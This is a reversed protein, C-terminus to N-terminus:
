ILTTRPARLCWAAPRVTLPEDHRRHNADLQRPQM